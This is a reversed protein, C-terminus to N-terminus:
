ASKGEELMSRLARDYRDVAHAMTFREEVMSRAAAGATSRLEDDNALRLLGLAVGAVDGAQALIGTVGDDVAEAVGGVDFAVVPLGTAAAELVIGPLGETRSTLVLADAWQLHPVIDPVSGLFEVEETLEADDVADRVAADLPGAGAIRMTVPTAASVRELVSVAALPNKEDSLSGAFLVRFPGGHSRTSTPGLFRDPVGTPLVTLDTRSVGLVNTLQRATGASVSFVHDVLRLMLSYTLRRRTDRAWYLPEGVSSYALRPRDKLTRVAGVGYQLTSSGNALVLDANHADIRGRLSRVVRLDFRGLERPARSTLPEAPVSSALGPPRDALAVFDVSWGREPLDEALQSAFVEAGRRQTSSVVITLNMPRDTHGTGADQVIGVREGVVWESRAAPADHLRTPERIFAHGSLTAM